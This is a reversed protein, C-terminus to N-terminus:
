RQKLRLDEGDVLITKFLRPAALRSFMREGYREELMAPSLNTAILTAKEESQRENLIFFLNELTIKPIMPEVGLDDIILLAPRLYDNPTERARISDMVDNILRYATLKVASYGRERVRAAICGLLFSKGLGAKGVFLIGKQDNHPFAEAYAECYARVRYMRRRQTENTYIAESFDAFTAGPERDGGIREALRKKLCGCMVGKIYGTDECCPCTYRPIFDSEAFGSKALLDAREAQLAALQERLDKAANGGRGISLITERQASEIEALRPIALFLERVRVDRADEAERRMRAYESKIAGDVKM